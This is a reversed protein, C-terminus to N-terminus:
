WDNQRIRQDMLIAYVYSPGFVGSPVDSVKSFPVHELAKAFQSKYIKAKTTDPILATGSIQYTFAQGMAQHFVEGQHALIRAWVTEIDLPSHRLDAPRTEELDVKDSATPAQWGASGESADEIEDEIENASAPADKSSVPETNTTKRSRLASLVLGLGLGILLGPLLEGWLWGLGAGILTLGGILNEDAYVRNENM